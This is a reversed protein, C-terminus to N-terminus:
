DIVKKAENQWPDWEYVQGVRYTGPEIVLTRHEGRGGGKQIHKLPTPTELRLYLVGDREFMQVDEKRVPDLIHSHHGEGEMVSKMGIGKAGQPIEDPFLLVDGQQYTKVKSGKQSKPRKSNM